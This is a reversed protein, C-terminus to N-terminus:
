PYRISRNATEGGVSKYVLQFGLELMATIPDQLRFKRPVILLCGLLLTCLVEKIRFLLQVRLPLLEGAKLCDNCVELLPHSLLFCLDNLVGRLHLVKAITELGILVAKFLKFLYALSIDVATILEGGWVKVLVVLLELVFKICLACGTSHDLLRCSVHLFLKLPRDM